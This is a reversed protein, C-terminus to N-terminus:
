KAGALGELLDCARAAGGLSNLARGADGAAEGYRADGLIEKVADRVQETSPSDTMLDIGAGLHTVRAATDKKDESTGACVLPVGHALAQTVSGYGGNTVLVDCRPLLEEYPLWSALRLNAPLSQSGSSGGDALLAQRIEEVQQSPVVLLLSADDRLARIAPLLLSSPDTAFTGQTIGVVRLNGTAQESAAVVEGWWDPLASSKGNLPSVLPGVYETPHLAQGFELEPSSAQIHLQPSYQLIQRPEVPGLGLEVRQANMCDAILEPQSLIAGLTSKPAHERFYMPVVGLTAWAPVEGLEHGSRLVSRLDAVQAALRGGFFADVIGELTDPPDAMCEQLVKDARDIEATAVFRAGTARVRAEQEPSTLWVVEHGRDVLAKAVSQMPLVHGTAYFTHLLFKAM